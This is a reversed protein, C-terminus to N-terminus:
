ESNRLYQYVLDGVSDNFKVWNYRRYNTIIVVVKGEASVASFASIGPLSGDRWYMVPQSNIQYKYLALGHCKRWQTIDCSKDLGMETIPVNSNTSKSIEAAILRTLDQVTGAWGGSALMANYNLQLLAEQSDPSDFFSRVENSAISNNNVVNISPYNVLQLQKTVLKQLPTNTSHAISEGLLCYGLNSYSYNEGPFYDLKLENLRLLNSPCWPDPELMPDGSLYRDFGAKHTLLHFLTIFTLRDDIKQKVELNLTSLLQSQLDIHKANALKIATFSTLLKSLSAYRFTSSKSVPSPIINKIEWGFACHLEQKTPEIISIQGGRAGLEYLKKVFRATDADFEATCNTTLPLLNVVAYKISEKNQITAVVTVFFFAAILLLLRM